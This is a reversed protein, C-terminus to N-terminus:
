LRLQGGLRCAVPLKAARMAKATNKPGINRKTKPVRFAENRYRLTRGGETGTGPEIDVM